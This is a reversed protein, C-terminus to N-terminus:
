VTLILVSSRIPNIGIRLTFSYILNYHLRFRFILSMEESYISRVLITPLTSIVYPCLLHLRFLPFFRLFFDYVTDYKVSYVPKENLSTRENSCVLSSM